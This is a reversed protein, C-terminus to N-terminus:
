AHDVHRNEGLAHAPLVLEDHIALRGRFGAPSKIVALLGVVQGDDVFPQALEQSPALIGALLGDASGDMGVM